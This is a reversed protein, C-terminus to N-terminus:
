RRRGLRKFMPQGIFPTVNAGEALDENLATMEVGDHTAEGIASALSM